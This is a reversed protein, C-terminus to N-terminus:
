FKVSPSSASESGCIKSKHSGNSQYVKDSCSRLWLLMLTSLRSALEGGDCNEAGKRRWVSSFSMAERKNDIKMPIQM